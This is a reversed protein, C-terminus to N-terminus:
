KRRRILLALGGIGLLATASPEPIATATAGSFSLISNDSAYSVGNVFIKSGVQEFKAFDALTLQAGPTLHIVTADPTPNNPGQLTIASTADVNVAGMSFFAFFSGGNMVNITGRGIGNNGSNTMTVGDFTISYASSVGWTPQEPLNGLVPANGTANFILNDNLTANKIGAVSSSWNGNNALDGDIAGTWTIAASASLSLAALLASSLVLTKKNM